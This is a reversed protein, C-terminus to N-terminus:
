CWWRKAKGWGGYGRGQIECGFDHAKHLTARDLVSGNRSAVFEHTMHTTNHFILRSWGYAADTSFVSYPQRPSDLPDLGDYHGAAGNTIYWASSPNDLGAPDIVYNFIPAIREYAHVHGSLVLDVSFQHFLPEFAQQCGLCITSSDNSASVYWPRHGAVVVWPTKQRDVSELDKKLWDVQENPYRGFPGGNEAEPGNPEDPGLLGNGLDTETSLQIYHVMGHDFSYWFNDRGGSENGPMRWHNIYGTFNTQGPLCISVDYSVNYRHDTTGGNDCNAEHNGPGVMYPKFATVPQLEDFFSELITEYVKAGDQITTNPLYGQIEEKLWYDAYAIDGAHLILDFESQHQILSQITNTDNPGLPNDAGNGVHTSLGMAGMTGLDVVVATSFPTHDGAERPTTFSYASEVSNAVLYYYKTNPHLGSLRVHNNYTRSTPYTTSSGYAISTLGKPDTGYRVSPKELKAFTNWSVTMGTPGAYALRHQLPEYKNDPVSGPVHGAQASVLTLLTASALGALFALKM